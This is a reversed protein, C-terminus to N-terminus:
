YPPPLNAMVLIPNFFKPMETNEEIRWNGKVCYVIEGNTVYPEYINYVDATNQIVTCM